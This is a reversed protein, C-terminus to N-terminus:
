YWVRYGEKEEWPEIELNVSIDEIDIPIDPDHSGKRTIKVDYIYRNNRHVGGDQLGNRNINIPWYFTKGSIKAEIVLRTFPSGPSEDPNCSQYCWLRIDTNRGTSGIEGRIEQYILDKEMFGELDSGNLRGANIIRKPGSEDDIMGYEANVNTLYVKIDSIREGAYPKGSFDCCLSRLVVESALPKMFVSRGLPMGLGANVHLEGTMVAALRREDELRSTVEKLKPRSTLSFWGEADFPSNALITIIRKGSGSVVNGDWAKFNDVRQYCDLKQFMDDKFTFIDLTKIETATEALIVSSTELEQYDQVPSCSYLFAPLLSSLTIAGLFPLNGILSFISVLYSNERCM